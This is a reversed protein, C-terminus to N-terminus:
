SNVFFCPFISWLIEGPRSWVYAEFPTCRARRWPFPRVSKYRLIRVTNLMLRNLDVNSVFVWCVLSAWFIDASLDLQDLCLSLLDATPRDAAKEMGLWIALNDRMPLWPIEFLLCTQLFVKEGFPYQWESIFQRSLFEALLRGSEVNDSTCPCECVSGPSVARDLKELSQTGLGWGLRFVVLYTPLLLMDIDLCTYEHM